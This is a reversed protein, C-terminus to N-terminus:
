HGPRSCSPPGPTRVAGPAFPSRKAMAGCAFEDLPDFTAWIDDVRDEISVVAIAIQDALIGDLFRRVALEESVGFHAALLDAHTHWAFGDFGVLVDDDHREVLLCLTGDPSTHCEAIM